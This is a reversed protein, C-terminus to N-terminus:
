RRRRQLYLRLLWQVVFPWVVAFAVTGPSVDFPWWSPTQQISVLLIDDCVLLVTTTCILHRTGGFM